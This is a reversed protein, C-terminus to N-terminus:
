RLVRGKCNWRFRSRLNPMDGAHPGEEHALGHSAGTPNYHGGLQNLTATDGRRSRKEHFHFGHTGESLNKADSWTRVSGRWLEVTGVQNGDRDKLNVTVPMLEDNVVEESAPETSMRRSMLCRDRAVQTAPTPENMEDACAQSCFCMHSDDTFWFWKKM